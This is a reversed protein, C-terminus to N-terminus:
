GAGWTSHPWGHRREGRAAPRQNLQVMTTTRRCAPVGAGHPFFGGPGARCAGGAPTPEGDYSPNGIRGVLRTSLVGRARWGPPFTKRLSFSTAVGTTNIAPSPMPGSTVAAA